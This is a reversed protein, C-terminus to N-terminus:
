SNPTITHLSAYMRLDDIELTAYSAPSGHHSSCQFSGPNIFLIGGNKEIVPQHSHGYIICDADPFNAWMREVINHYPGAGHCLGITYNGIQIVKKENFHQRLSYNCMNGHVAHITKGQFVDLISANTLDGAHFIIDCDSFARLALQKYINTIKNLHTDSLIGAKIM